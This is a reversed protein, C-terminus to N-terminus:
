TARSPLECTRLPRIEFVGTDFNLRNAAEIAEDLNACDIVYIGLLQEKTEAFPGDIVTPKSGGRVTVATTTPMLRFAPGLKGAAGLDERLKDHKAMVASEEQKTWGDVM